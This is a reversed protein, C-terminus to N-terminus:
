GCRDGDIEALLFITGLFSERYEDSVATDGRYGKEFRIPRGARDRGGSGGPALDRGASASGGSSGAGRSATMMQAAKLILVCSAAHTIAGALVMRVAEAFPVRLTKMAETGERHLERFSLGRALYLTVPCRVMSTDLDITGLDAWDAAEIGLAERLEKAAATWPSEGPEVGGCAVEVSEAGLAYRFQRVLHAAGDADVALVAAGPKVTVTSYIGPRGDPRIVRDERLALFADRHKETTSEITWPGHRQAM